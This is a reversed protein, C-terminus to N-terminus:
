FFQLQAERTACHNLIQRCHLPCSNLSQDLFIGCATSCSLGHVVVVSGTSQLRRAVVVSSAHQLQQLGHVSLGHEAFLSAGVILLRHVALFPLGQERCSSFARACCCLGLVAMFFYFIFLILSFFVSTLSFIETVYSLGPKDTTNCKIQYIFFVM